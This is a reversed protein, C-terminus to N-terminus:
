KMYYFIIFITHLIFIALIIFGSKNKKFYAYDFVDKFCMLIEVNLNNLMESIGELSEKMLINNGFLDKEYINKSLLDQFTCECEVKMTTFNLGKNKCGPDCLTVNPYFSKIRDQLTADKENPSTFHFCIDNYFSGNLDFIDIKQGELLQLALPDNLLSLINEYMTINKDSCSKNADLKEGTEPHFFGFSTVPNTDNIIDIIAIILDKNEDINNDKKLQQIM